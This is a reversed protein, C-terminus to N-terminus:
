TRIMARKAFLALLSSASVAYRAGVRRRAVVDPVAVVVVVGWGEFEFNLLKKNFPM